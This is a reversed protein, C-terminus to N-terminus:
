ACREDGHGHAIMGMFTIPLQRLGFIMKNCIQLRPHTTKTHDMKDHIICLFEDKSRV